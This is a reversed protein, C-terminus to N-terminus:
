IAKDVGTWGQPLYYQLLLFVGGGRITYEYPVHTPYYLTERADEVTHSSLGRDRAAWPRGGGGREDGGGRSAGARRRLTTPRAAGCHRALAAM